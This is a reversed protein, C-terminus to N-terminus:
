EAFYLPITSNWENKLKGFDDKEIGSIHFELETLNIISLSFPKGVKIKRLNESISPVDLDIEAIEFNEGLISIRGSLENEQEHRFIEFIQRILISDFHEASVLFSQIKHIQLNFKDVSISNNSNLILSQSFESCDRVLRLFAYDRYEDVGATKNSLLDIALSDIEDFRIERKRIGLVTVTLLIIIPIAPISGFFINRCDQPYFYPFYLSELSLIAIPLWKIIRNKIGIAALFGVTLIHNFLWPLTTIQQCSSIGISISPIILLSSVILITMMLWHMSKQLVFYLALTVISLLLLTSDKLSLIFYGPLSLLTVIASARVSNMAFDNLGAIRSKSLTKRIEGQLNVFPIRITTRRINKGVKGSIEITAGCSTTLENLTKSLLPAQLNRKREATSGKGVGNEVIIIEVGSSDKLSVSITLRSADTHKEANLLYERIIELTSESIENSEIQKPSKAISVQIRRRSRESILIALKNEFSSKETGGIENALANVEFEVQGLLNDIPEHQEVRNRMYILTNLITGHMRLNRSDKLNIQKLNTLRETSSQIEGDVIEQISHAVKLYQRRIIISALGITIIWIFSFYSHFLSIDANDTISKLNLTAVYSQYFSVLVVLTIAIKLNQIASFNLAAAFTILGISTWPHSPADGLLIPSFLLYLIVPTESYTISTFRSFALQALLALILGVVYIIQWSKLSNEATMAQLISIASLAPWAISTARRWELDAIERGVSFNEV